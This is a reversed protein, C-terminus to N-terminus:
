QILMTALWTTNSATTPLRFVYEYKSFLALYIVLATIKVKKLIFTPCLLWLNQLRFGFKLM